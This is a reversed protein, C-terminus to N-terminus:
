PLLALTRFSRAECIHGKEESQLKFHALLPVAADIHFLCSLQTGKTSPNTQIYRKALEKWGLAERESVVGRIVGVGRKRLSDRFRTRKEIDHMDRFELEPTVNSGLAKIVDVEKRLDALLRHWSDRVRDEHGRILRRKLDAFRSPLQPSEAGSLSPFVSSIDGAAKSPHTSTTAQRTAIRPLSIRPIM